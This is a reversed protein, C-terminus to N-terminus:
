PGPRIKQVGGIKAAVLWHILTASLYASWLALVHLPKVTAFVAAFALATLVFKGAEGRYFGRAIHGAALAGRFRFAQCAFYYNPAIAILGGLLVSYATITDIWLLSASIVLLIAAQLAYLKGLPPRTIAAGSHAAKM